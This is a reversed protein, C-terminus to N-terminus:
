INKFKRNQSRLKVQLFKLFENPKDTCIGDVNMELLEKWRKKINKNFVNESILEPSMAYYKKGLSHALDVYKRDINQKKIEDAWIFDAKRFENKGFGSDEYFHLGANYKPYKEKIIDILDLTLSDCAFFGIREKFNYKNLIYIVGGIDKLDKIHIFIENKKNKYNEVLNCFEELTLLRQKDNLIEDHCMYYQNNYFRVDTEFSYGERLANEFAQKSNEPYLRKYGRHLILKQKM